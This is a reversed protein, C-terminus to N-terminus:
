KSPKKENEGIGYYSMIISERDDKSVKEYCKFKCKCDVHVLQNKHVLNGTSSTYQRGM